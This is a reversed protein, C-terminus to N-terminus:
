IKLIRRGKKILEDYIECIERATSNLDNVVRKFREPQEHQWEKPVSQRDSKLSWTEGGITTTFYSIKEILKEKIKELEPNIFEFDSKKNKYEIEDLNEISKNPFSGGFSHYRLFSIAGSQPLLENRIQQFIKRDLALTEQNYTFNPDSKKFRKRVIFTFYTFISLLLLLWLEIKFKLVKMLASGFDINNVSSSIYTYILGFITIILAAIVKSGVPDNWIKKIKEM